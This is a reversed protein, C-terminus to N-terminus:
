SGFWIKIKKWLSPKVLPLPWGHSAYINLLTDLRRECQNYDKGITKLVSGHVHLMVNYKSEKFEYSVLGYKRHRIWGDVKEPM